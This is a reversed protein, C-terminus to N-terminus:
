RAASCCSTLYTYLGCKVDNSALLSLAHVRSTPGWCCTNQCMYVCVREATNFRQQNFRTSCVYGASTHCAFNTCPQIHWQCAPSVCAASCGALSWVQIISGSNGEVVIAGGRAGTNDVFTSNQIFVAAGNKIDMAGAPPLHHLMHVCTSSTSMQDTCPVFLVSVLYKDLWVCNQLNM